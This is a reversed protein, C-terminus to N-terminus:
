LSQVIEKLRTYIWTKTDRPHFFAAHKTVHESTIHVSMYMKQLVYAGTNLIGFLSSSHETKIQKKHGDFQLIEFLNYVFQQAWSNKQIYLRKILPSKEYVWLAQCLEYAGYLTKLRDPLALADQELWLNFCWSNKEENGWSRRKKKYLAIAIVCLRTLWLRQPSTIIMFDIDDDPKANHVATSGTLAIAQIWPIKKALRVFSEAEILKKQSINERITRVETSVPYKKLILYAGKKVIIGQTILQEITENVQDFSVFSSSIIRQWVEQATLPFAFQASYGLTLIVRTKLSSKFVM